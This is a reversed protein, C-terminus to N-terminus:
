FISKDYFGYFTHVSYYYFDIFNQNKTTTYMNMIDSIDIYLSNPKRVSKCLM